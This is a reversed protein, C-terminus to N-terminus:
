RLRPIWIKVRVHNRGRIDFSCRGGLLQLLQRVLYLGLGSGPRDLVKQGRYFRDYVREPDPLAVEPCVNEVVFLLESGEVIMQLDITTDEKAYKTANSLLNAIVVRILSEDTLVYSTEHDIGAFRFKANPATDSINKAESKVLQVLNVESRNVAVRNADLQESFNFNDLLSELSTLARQMRAKNVTSVDPKSLALKFVALSTGVEHTVTWLLDRYLTSMRTQVDTELSLQKVKERTELFKQRQATSLRMVMSFILSINVLGDIALGYFGITSAPLVGMVPLLWISISVGFVTYILRVSKQTLYKQTGLTWAGTVMLVTFASVLLWSAKIIFGPPFYFQIVLLFSFTLLIIFKGCFIWRAVNLVQFLYTQFIMMSLTALPMWIITIRNTALDQFLASLQGSYSLAALIYTVQALLFLLFLRDGHRYFLYATILAAVGLSAFFLLSLFHHWMQVSQMTYVDGINLAIAASSTTQISLYLPRTGIEDLPLVFGLRPSSWPRQSFSLTDGTEIAIWQGHRDQYHLTVRDLNPLSVQLLAKQSPQAQQQAISLRYWLTGTLFGWAEIRNAPAFRARSLEQPTLSNAADYHSSIESFAVVAVDDAQATKDAVSYITAAFASLIAVLTVFILILKRM